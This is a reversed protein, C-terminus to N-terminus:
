DIKVRFKSILQSVELSRFVEAVSGSKMSVNSMNSKNSDVFDLLLEFERLNDIKKISLLIQEFVCANKCMRSVLKEVYEGNVELKLCKKLLCKFGQKVLEESPNVGDQLIICASGFDVHHLFQVIESCQNFSLGDNMQRNHILKLVRDSKSKDNIFEEINLWNEYFAFMEFEGVKCKKSEKFKALLDSVLLERKWTNPPEKKVSNFDVYKLSAIVKLLESDRKVAFGVENEFNKYVSHTWDEFVKSKHGNREAARLGKFSLSRICEDEHHINAELFNLGKKLIKGAKFATVICRLVALYLTLEDTEELIDVLADVVEDIKQYKKTKIVDTYKSIVDITVNSKSM